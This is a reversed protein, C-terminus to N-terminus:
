KKVHKKVNRDYVYKATERLKLIEEDSMNVTTANRGKIFKYTNLEKTLLQLNSVDNNFRNNDIHDVELGEPIPGIHWAYVVRHVYLTKTKYREFYVGNRKELKRFRKDYVYVVMHRPPSTPTKGRKFHQKLIKDKFYIEDGKKSVYTIGIDQLDQKTLSFKNSM